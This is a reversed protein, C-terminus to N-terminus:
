VLQKKHINDLDLEENRDDFGDWVEMEDDFDIGLRDEWYERLDQTKNFVRYQLSIEDRHLGNKMIKIVKPFMNQFEKSTKSYLGEKILSFDKKWKKDLKYVLVVFGGECDYDDIIDKTREYESDLFERFKDLNEPKFLLYVSNEYQVDRNLDVLYGNLYGNEKLQNKDIKLTPVIFISSITKKLEM